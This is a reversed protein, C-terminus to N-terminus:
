SQNGPGPTGLLEPFSPVIYPTPAPEIPKILIPAVSPMPFDGGPGPSFVPTEPTIQTLLVKLIEEFEKRTIDSMGDPGASVGFGPRFISVQQDQQQLSLEEGFLFAARTTDGDVEVISIGGRIGVTATPTIVVSPNRKSIFGGVMRLIGKTIQVVMRGERAQEDYQYQQVVVESNPAVTIASQDAFLVHMATQADTSLRQGRVSDGAVQVHRVGARASGPRTVTTVVAEPAAPAPQALAGPLAASSLAAALWWDNKPPPSM